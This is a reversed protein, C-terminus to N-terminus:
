DKVLSWSPVGPTKEAKGFILCLPFPPPHPKYVSPLAVNMFVTLGSTVLINQTGSM